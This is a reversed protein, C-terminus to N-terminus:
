GGAIQCDVRGLEDSGLASVVVFPDSSSLSLGVSIRGEEVSGELSTPFVLAMLSFFSVVLPTTGSTVLGGATGLSGESTFTVEWLWSGTRAVRGMGTLSSKLPLPGVEGTTAAAWIMLAGAFSM